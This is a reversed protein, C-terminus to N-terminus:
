YLKGCSARFGHQRLLRFQLAITNLDDEKNDFNHYLKKLAIEIEDQFHYEVALRQIADILRLSKSPEEMVDVLISGIEGKLEEHQRLMSADVNQMM